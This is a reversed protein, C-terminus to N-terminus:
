EERLAKSPDIRAVRLAPILAASLAVAALTFAVTILTPPDYVGIGYLVSRMARLAGACLAFGAILGLASASAGPAGTHIMAQQITSGLAMRIGIERTRQAIINAVLAFIGVASLLLALGAMGTLLAVEVRQTALTSAMLNNMSYFGSFPLEPDAKALAAQMQGTIGEVPGNTRVVWSPQFFTNVLALSRSDLIQVAPIYITEEDTLPESGQNLQGMSSLLTDGVVGVILLNPKLHRGVPNEDRLFKRAFTRNVIVVRQNNGPDADTFTRGALLPIELTEFYGPTVYVSNTSGGAGAEKGDGITFGDILAREYPLTLALAANKVGPISRMAGLGERLLKQFVLPDAYKADNLSAKATVVGNPNFGPPLTQLHILTRILLGSGALLVVTLAVEAAILSQRLRISGGGIVGRGPIASRLDTRRTALAPLMGFVLSTLISLSLTFALVRADLTVSAVPLFGEPLLFLLGHLALFGIGVGAAGGALSLALNETWLQKVIRWQSAGLAVRTVIEGTRRSIRVLMLGALNACAIFLIFGATVMLALVQPRLRASSAQQLPVGYYALQAGPNARKMYQARATQAWAINMQANAQQWTDSDRLRFITVFNAGRGEGLRDPKLPIYLDAALPITAHEPLVGIITYPEGKLSASQGLINSAGAFTSRWLSYTLIVTRPGGPRDEDETFNRGLLPRVGLVDFYHASIAGAHVYDVHAGSHLNVGAARMGFVASNLSPVNDRLLEWQEGDISRPGDYPENGTTRLYLTGLRDPQPYPLTKLLLANVVSFIATNAGISLALTVIVTLTFGPTRHLQRLM